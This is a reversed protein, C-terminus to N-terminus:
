NCLKFLKIAYISKTGHRGAWSGKLSNAEIYKNELIKLANFLESKFFNKRKSQFSLTTLADIINFSGTYNGFNSELAWISVIIEAPVNYKM